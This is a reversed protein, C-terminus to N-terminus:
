CYIESDYIGHIKLFLMSKIIASFLELIDQLNCFNEHIGKHHCISSLKEM